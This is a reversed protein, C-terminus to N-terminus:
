ELMLSLRTNIGSSKGNVDFRDLLIYRYNLSFQVRQNPWWNLALSYTDMNGGDVSGDSLDLTSYRFAVEWAGWGGQDVAVAVPVPNFIGNQKRYQRMEGTLTWTGSINYGYFKPDAFDPTATNTGLYEFGVLFPGKRWYIELSYTFLDNAPFSDTDVFIPAQYFEAETKGRVVQQTNSYRIGLGLHLLNSEDRTLYPIGTV